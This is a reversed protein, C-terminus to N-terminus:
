RRASRPTCSSKQCRVEGAPNHIRKLLDLWRQWVPAGRRMQLRAKFAAVIGAWLPALLVLLATQVLVLLLDGM